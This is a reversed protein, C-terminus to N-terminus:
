LFLSLFYIFMYFILLSDGMVEKGGRGGEKRGKRMEKGGIYAAANRKKGEKNEKVM